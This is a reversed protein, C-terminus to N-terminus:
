LIKFMLTGQLRRGTTGTELYVGVLVKWHTEEDSLAFTIDRIKASDYYEVRVPKWIGMSPVALGWDWAFSAQMKRIMNVHCEGNYREPPCEPVM